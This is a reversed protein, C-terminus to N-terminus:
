VDIRRGKVPPKILKGTVSDAAGLHLGKQNYVEFEGHLRDWTYVRKRSEDMWRPEGSRVIRKLTEIFGKKPPPVNTM